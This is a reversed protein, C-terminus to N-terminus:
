VAKRYSHWTGQAPLRRLMKQVAAAINSNSGPAAIMWSRGDRRTHEVIMRGAPTDIVTVAGSGIHTRGGASVVGSQIGVISMQTSREPDGAVVLARM